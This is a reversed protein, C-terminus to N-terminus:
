NLTKDSPKPNKKSLDFKLSGYLSVVASKWTGKSNIWDLAIGFGQDLSSNKAMPSGTLFNAAIGPMLNPQKSGYGYVSGYPTINVFRSFFIPISVRARYTLKREFVGINGEMDGIAIVENDIYTEPKRDQYPVLGDQNYSSAIDGSISIGMSTGSLWGRQISSTTFWTSHGHIGIVLPRHKTRVKTTADYFNLHHYEGYASVGAMYVFPTRKLLSLDYFTNLNRQFGIEVRYSPRNLGTAVDFSKGQNTGSGAAKFSLNISQSVGITKKSTDGTLHYYYKDGLIFGYGVELATQTPTFSAQFSGAKYYEFIEKGRSDQM